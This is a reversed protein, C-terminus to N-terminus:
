FFLTLFLRSQEDSLPKLSISDIHKLDCGNFTLLSLYLDFIHGVLQPNNELCDANYHGQIYCNCRRSQAKKHFFTTNRDGEKLWKIRLRHQWYIEHRHLADELKMRLQGMEEMDERQRAESLQLIRLVSTTISIKGISYYM